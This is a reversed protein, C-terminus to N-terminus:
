KGDGLSIASPVPHTGPLLARVAKSVQETGISNMCVVSPMQCVDLCPHFPCGGSSHVIRHQSGYPAFWNPSTPGMVVVAQKGLAAALHAAVSDNCLVHDAVALVRIFDTLTAPAYHCINPAVVDPYAADPPHIIIVPVNAPIITEKIIANFKTIPWRKAAQRGGTHVLWMSQGSHVARQVFAQVTPDLPLRDLAFWPAAINWNAAFDLVDALQRWTDLHSQVSSQRIVKQTLLPRGLMVSALVTAIKGLRLQRRRWGLYSAYFNQANMPLGVRRRAGSCAMALHVRADAWVAVAVDPTMGRIRRLVSRDEADFWKRGSGHDMWAPRWPVIHSHDLALAAIVASEPQCCIFVEYAAAAARIFPLSLVTDGLM